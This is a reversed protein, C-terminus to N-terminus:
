KWEVKGSLSNFFNIVVFVEFLIQLYIIEYFKFSHGLERQHKIAVFFDYIFKVAFPLAFILSIFIFLFSFLSLLNILYWFGLFMKQKLLYRFSTQLHRKKQKLYQNFNEPASSYVFAGPEIFTGILMKHKVAERLLLDDDGSITETTNSYGGIREFSKKRFAFSRASASYPVNLGVATITLFTNRFNEFAALKQILKPGSEIPAVGFVFDYGADLKYAISKLWSIAPKCDADTIVVFKHKANKIGILLAGKKGELEKRDAKILYFNNKDAILSEIQSATKDTSNDDVFIAEFNEEPYDLRELFHILTSINKEENKAAIILSLKLSTKHFSLFQKKVEFKYGNYIYIGLLLFTFTLTYAFYLIEM